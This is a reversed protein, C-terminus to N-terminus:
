DMKGPQLANVIGKPSTAGGIRSLFIIFGNNTRDLIVEGATSGAQPFGFRRNKEKVTKGADL